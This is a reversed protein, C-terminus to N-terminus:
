GSPWRARRRPSAGWRSPRLRPPPRPDTRFLRSQQALLSGKLNVDSLHQSARLERMWTELAKIDDRLDAWARRKLSHAEFRTSLVCKRLDLQLADGKLAAFSSGVEAAHVSRDASLRFPNQLPLRVEFQRNSQPDTHTLEEGELRVEARRIVSLAPQADNEALLAKRRADLHKDGRDDFTKLAERLNERRESAVCGACILAMLTLLFIRKM